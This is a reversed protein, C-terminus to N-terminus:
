SKFPLSNLFESLNFISFFHLVYTKSTATKYIHDNKVASKEQVIEDSDSINGNCLPIYEHDVEMNDNKGNKIVESAETSESQMVTIPIKNNVVEEGKDEEVCGNLLTEENIEVIDCIKNQNQQDSDSNSESVDKASFSFLTWVASM